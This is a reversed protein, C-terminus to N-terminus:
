VLAGGRCWPVVVRGFRSSGRSSCHSREHHMWRGLMWAFAAAVDEISSCPVSDEGRKQVRERCDRRSARARKEIDKEEGKRRWM